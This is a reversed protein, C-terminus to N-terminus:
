ITGAAQVVRETGHGLIKGGPRADRHAGGERPVAELDEVDVLDRRVTARQADVRSVDAVVLRAQGGAATLLGLTEAAGAEDRDVVAVKVGNAQLDLTIQEGLGGAGGTIVAVAGDLGARAEWWGM